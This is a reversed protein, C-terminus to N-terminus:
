GTKCLILSSKLHGLHNLKFVSVEMM